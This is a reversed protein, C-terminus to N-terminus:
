IKLVNHRNNKKASRYYVTSLYLILATWIFLFAILNDRSFPENYVFVGLLLMITPTIFQLIGVMSLPIVRAGSSFLLLPVATSIGGVILLLHDTQMISSFQFSRDPMFLLYILTVPRIIMTEITLSYIASLNM